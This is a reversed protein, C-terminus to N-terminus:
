RRCGKRPLSHSWTQLLTAAPTVVKDLLYYQGRRILVDGLAQLSHQTRERTQRSYCRCWLTSRFDYRALQKVSIPRLLCTRPVMNRVGTHARSHERAMHSRDGYSIPRMIDFSNSSSHHRGSASRTRSRPRLWAHRGCCKGSPLGIKFLGV